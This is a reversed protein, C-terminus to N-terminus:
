PNQIRAAKVVNNLLMTITMPGVGGPVPTLYGAKEFVSDFDVDGVVKGDVRSTGVDIVIAGDKVMDAKVMKPRGIAVVLLDALRCIDALNKTRSHCITVTAQGEMLMLAVPKGVINSRGIVVARKGEVTAGTSLILEIIGAPTCPLMEPKEGKLLRGANIVGLGDVDKEPRIANLLLAENLHKPLPLQVLIGHVASDGNLQNILSLVRGEEVNAPLLHSKSNMGLEIAGREKMKVYIQSGPDDGVLIVDLRPVVGRVILEKVKDAIVLRIKSAVAKGDILKGM